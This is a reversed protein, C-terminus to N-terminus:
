HDAHLFRSEKSDVPFKQSTYKLNHGRLSFFPPQTFFEETPLDFCDNSLNYALILDGRLRRRVLSVLNLKQLRGKNEESRVM